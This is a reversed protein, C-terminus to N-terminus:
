GNPGTLVKEGNAFRPVRAEANELINLFSVLFGNSGDQQVPEPAPPDVNRGGPKKRSPARTSRCAASSMASSNVRTQRVPAQNAQSCEAVIGSQNPRAFGQGASEAKGTDSARYSRRRM